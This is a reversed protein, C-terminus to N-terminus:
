SWDFPQNPGCDTNVNTRDGPIDFPHQESLHYFRRHALFPVKLLIGQESGGDSPGHM